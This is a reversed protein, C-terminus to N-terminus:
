SAVAQHAAEYQELVPGPIRGRDPVDIDQGRAWERVKAAGSSKPHAPTKRLKVGAETAKREALALRAKLDAIEALAASRAEEAAQEDAIRQAAEEYVEHLKALATEAKGLAAQVRRDGCGRADELLEDVSGDAVAADVPRSDTWSAAIAVIDDPLRLQDDDEMPATALQTAPHITWGQLRALQVIRGLPQGTVEAAEKATKGKALLVLAKAHEVPLATV